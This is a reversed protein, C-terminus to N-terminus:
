AKLRWSSLIDNITSRNRAFCDPSCSVILVYEYEARQDTAAIQAVQLQRDASTPSAGHIVFTTRNGWYGGPLTFPKYALQSGIGSDLIQDVHYYANRLAQLSLQDHAGYPLKRIWSLVAPHDLLRGPKTLDTVTPDPAADFGALFPYATGFTQDQAAGLVQGVDRASYAKWTSPVRYVMKYRSSGVYVHSPSACGAALAAVALAATCALIWRPHRGAIRPNPFPRRRRM